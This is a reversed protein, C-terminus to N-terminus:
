FVDKPLVFSLLSELGVWHYFEALVLWRDYSPDRPVQVPCAFGECAPEDPPHEPNHELGYPPTTGVGFTIRHSM